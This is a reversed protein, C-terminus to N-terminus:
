IVPLLCGMAKSTTTTILSPVVALPANTSPGMLRQRKPSSDVSEHDSCCSSGSVDASTSVATASSSVHVLNLITGKPLEFSGGTALLSQLQAIIHSTNGHVFDANCLLALDPTTFKPTIPSISPSVLAIPLVSTPTLTIESDMVTLYNRLVHNEEELSKILEELETIFMRKRDRTRKAHMRNRERRIQDLEQSTCKSRDRGLLDYDISDDSPGDQNDTPPFDHQPQVKETNEISSDSVRGRKLSHHGPLILAPLEPIKSADPIEDVPRRLLREINPDITSSSKTDASTFLDMLISATNKEDIFQRLRVQEQKLEDARGQLVQTHEKKRQRTKRAHMRNRERSALTTRFLRSSM